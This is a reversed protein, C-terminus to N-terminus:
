FKAGFGLNFGLNNLKTQGSLQLSYYTLTEAYLTDTIEFNLGAGVDLGLGSSQPISASVSDVSTTVGFHYNLHGSFFPLLREDLFGDMFYYRVGTGILFQSTTSSLEEDANLPNEATQTIAHRLVQGDITLGSDFRWGGRLGLTLGGDGKSNELNSSMLGYGAIAGVETDAIASGSMFLGALAATILKM